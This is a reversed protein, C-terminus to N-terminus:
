EASEISSAPCPMGSRQRETNGQPAEGDAKRNELSRLKPLGEFPSDDQVVPQPSSMRAKEPPKQAPETAESTTAANGGIHESDTNGEQQPEEARVEQRGDTAGVSALSSSTHATDPTAHLPYEDAAPPTSPGAVANGGDVNSEPAEYGPSSPEQVAAEQAASGTAANAQGTISPPLRDAPDHRAPSEGPETLPPITGDLLHPYANLLPAASGQWSDVSPEPRM